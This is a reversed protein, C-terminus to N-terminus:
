TWGGVRIEWGFILFLVLAFFPLAFFLVLFIVALFVTLSPRETVPGGTRHEDSDAEGPPESKGKSGQYSHIDGRMDFLAVGGAALFALGIYIGGFLMFLRQPSDGTGVDLSGFLVCGAAAMALITVGAVMLRRINRREKGGMPVRLEGQAKGIAWAVPVVALKAPRGIDFRSL